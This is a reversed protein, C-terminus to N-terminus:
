GLILGGLLLFLALKQLNKRSWAKRKSSIALILGLIMIGASANVPPSGKHWRRLGIYFRGELLKDQKAPVFTIDKMEEPKLFGHFRTIRVHDGAFISHSSVLKSYSKGQWAMEAVCEAVLSPLTLREQAAKIAPAFDISSALLINGSKRLIPAITKKVDEHSLETCDYEVPELRQSAATLLLLENEAASSITSIALPYFPKKVAFTIALPTLGGSVTETMGKHKAWTSSREIKTVVFYFEDDIYKKLIPKAKEAM